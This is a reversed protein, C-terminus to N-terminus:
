LLLCVLYLDFCIKQYVHFMSSESQFYTCADFNCHLLTAQRKVKGTPGAASIITNFHKQLHNTSEDPPCAPDRRAPEAPRDSPRRSPWENEVHIGGVLCVTLYAAADESGRKDRCGNTAISLFIRKRGRRGGPIAILIRGEARRRRGGERGGERCYHGM